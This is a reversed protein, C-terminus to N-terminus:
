TLTTLLFSVAFCFSCFFWYPEDWNDKSALAVGFTYSALGACMIAIASM